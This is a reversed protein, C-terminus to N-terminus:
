ITWYDSGSYLLEVDERKADILQQLSHQIAEYHFSEAEKINPIRM